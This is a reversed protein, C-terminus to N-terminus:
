ALSYFLISSGSCVTGNCASGPRRGGLWAALLIACLFVTIFPVSQLFHNLVLEVVFAATVALIAVVYYPMMRLYPRWVSESQPM